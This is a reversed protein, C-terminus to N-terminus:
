RNNKFDLILGETLWKALAERNESLLFRQQDRTHNINGLEIFATVPQTYNLMFLNRTTVTGKYGRGPQYQDYKKRFTDQLNNCLKEGKTSKSYYYFFVDTTQGKSRSDIHLVVARQYSSGHKKYLKNLANKTQALRQNHKESLKIEPYCYEDEDHKLIAEDRIGDNPDRLIIYVLAGHQILNRGLRLTIDYAYEDECIMHNMYKGTAGPDPGGHGSVLYFVAGKLQQDLVEVKQYKKGFIKYSRTTTQSNGPFTLALLLALFFVKLRPLWTLFIHIISNSIM